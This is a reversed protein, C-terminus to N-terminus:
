EDVHEDLQIGIEFSIIMAGAIVFIRLADIWISNYNAEVWDLLTLCFTETSACIAVMLCWFWIKKTLKNIM